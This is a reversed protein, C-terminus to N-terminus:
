PPPLPAPGPAPTPAPSPKPSPQPPTPFGPITPNGPITPVGGSSPLKKPLQTSERKMHFTVAEASMVPNEDKDIVYASVSHTGRDINSFGIATTAIPSGHLKDDLYFQVKHGLRTMLPPQLEIKFQVVGQNNRVTAEDEPESFTMSKYLSKVPQKAPSAARRPLPPPTYTPLEPLRVREAGTTPTDSYIVEGSETVTKYVAAQVLGTLLVLLLLSYRM